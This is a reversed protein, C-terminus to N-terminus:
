TRQKIGFDELNYQFTFDGPWFKSEFYNIIMQIDLDINEVPVYKGPVPYDDILGPSNSCIEIM